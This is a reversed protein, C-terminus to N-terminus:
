RGAWWAGQQKRAAEYEAQSMNERIGPLATRGQGVPTIPPPAKSPQRAPKSISAELKGLELVQKAPSMDALREAVDPHTALHYLLQPGADSEVIAARATPALDVGEDLFASVTEQYDKATAEFAKERQQWQKATEAQAAVQRGQRESGQQAQDREALATRGKQDARYDARADLYDEYSEYAERKPAEDAAPTQQKSKLETLQERLLRAETEAAIRATKQRELRRQFKSQKKAEVQEATEQPEAGEEAASTETNQDEPVAGPQEAVVQEDAAQEVVVETM